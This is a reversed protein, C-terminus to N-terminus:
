DYSFSRLVQLTRRVKDMEELSIKKNGEKFLNNNKEYEDISKLAYMNGCGGVSVFRRLSTMIQEFAKISLKGLSRTM